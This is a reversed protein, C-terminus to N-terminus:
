EFSPNYFRSVQEDEDFPTRRKFEPPSEIVFYNSGRNFSMVWRDFFGDNGLVGFPLNWEETFFWAETLWNMEEVDAITVHVMEAVALRAAGAIRFEHHKRQRWGRLDVGLAEGAGRPFLCASSGTDALARLTWESDGLDLRVDLTPRLILGGDPRDIVRDEERYPFVHFM